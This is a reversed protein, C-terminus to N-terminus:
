RDARDLPTVTFRWLGGPAPAGAYVAAHQDWRIELVARDPTLQARTLTGRALRTVTGRGATLPGEYTLYRPRHDPIPEASFAACAPHDPRVGLRFSLLAGGPDDPRAILWDFHSSGDPQQHLLLVVDPM